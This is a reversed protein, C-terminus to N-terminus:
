FYFGFTMFVYFNCVSTLFYLNINIQIIYKKVRYVCNESVGLPTKVGQTQVPLCPCIPNCVIKKHLICIKVKQCCQPFTSNKPVLIIEGFSM